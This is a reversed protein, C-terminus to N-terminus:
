IYNLQEWMVIIQILPFFLQWSKSAIGLRRKWSNMPGHFKQKACGIRLAMRELNAEIMHTEISVLFCVNVNIFM